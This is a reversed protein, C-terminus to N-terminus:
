EYVVEVHELHARLKELAAAVTSADAAKAAQEVTAAIESVRDFGYSGGAGKIKHALTRLTEFDRSAHAADLVQLDAQRNALFRPVLSEFSADVLVIEREM